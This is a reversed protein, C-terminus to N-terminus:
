PTASRQDDPIALLERWEPLYVKWDLDDRAAASSRGRFESPDSRVSELLESSRKVIAAHDESDVLTGLSRETVLASVDGLGPSTVVALGAAVYEAFKVPSAVSNLPHKERLMFGIDAAMLHSAVETRSLGYKVIAGDPALEQNPLSGDPSPAGSLLLLFKLDAENGLERWAGLMQSIQQYRSIGGAYAVVVDSQKLGLQERTAARIEPDFGFKDIDVCSPIVTANQKGYQESLVAAAGRSVCTIATARRLSFKVLRNIVWRRLKGAGRYASEAVVDGRFDYILRPGRLPFALAHAVAGWIGRAYVNEGGHERRLARVARASKVLVSATGGAVIIKRPVEAADLVPEIFTEYLELDDVIAVIGVKIGHDTQVRIWDLVQSQLVPATDLALGIDALLYIVDLRREDNRM